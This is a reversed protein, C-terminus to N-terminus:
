WCGGVKCFIMLMYGLCCIMEGGLLMVDIEIFNCLYVWDGIVCLEDIWYCGDIKLVYEVGVNVDCLVVVFVVKDFLLKGVVMFIVDDVILDLVMVLDGCWSLVFWNDVFECVVCEDEIMM